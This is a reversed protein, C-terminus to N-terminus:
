QVKDLVKVAVLDKDEDQRGARNGPGTSGGCERCGQGRGNGRGFMRGGREGNGWACAQSFALLAPITLLLWHKKNM